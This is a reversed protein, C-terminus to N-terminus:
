SAYSCKSECAYVSLRECQEREPSGARGLIGSALPERKERTRLGTEPCVGGSGDRGGTLHGQRAKITAASLAPQPSPPRAPPRHPPPTFAPRAAPDQGQREHALGGDCNM